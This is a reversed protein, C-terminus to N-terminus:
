LPRPPTSYQLVLCPENSPVAIKSSYIVNLPQNVSWGTNEGMTSHEIGLNDYFENLTGYAIRGTFLDHNFNAEATKIANMSSKFYRGSLAEYCMCDGNGTVIVQKGDVPNANLKDQAIEDRILSQEKKEGLQQLVKAQYEKLATDALSYAGALAASRRLHISNAGVICAITAVGMLASPLYLKWTLKVMDLKSPPEYIIKDKEWAQVRRADEEEVLEIAKPTAGVALIATTLVGGVGLGTMISPSNKVM